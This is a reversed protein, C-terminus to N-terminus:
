IFLVDKDQTRDTLKDLKLEIFNGNSDLGWLSNEGDLLIKVKGSQMINGKSCIDDMKNCFVLSWFGSYDTPEIIAAEKVGGLSRVLNKYSLVNDYEGYQNAKSKLTLATTDPNIQSKSIPQWDYWHSVKSDAFVEMFPQMIITLNEDVTNQNRYTYTVKTFAFFGYAVSLYIALICIVAKLCILFLNNKEM